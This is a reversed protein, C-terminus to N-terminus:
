PVQFAGCAFRLGVLADFRKMLLRRHLVCRPQIEDLGACASCWRSDGCSGAVGGRRLVRFTPATVTARMREADAHFLEPVAQGVSRGPSGLRRAKRESVMAAPEEVDSGIARDCGM